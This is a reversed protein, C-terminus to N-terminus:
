AYFALSSLAPSNEFDPGPLGLLASVYLDAAADRSASGHVRMALLDRMYQQLPNEDLIVSAGAVPWIDFVAQLCSAIADADEFRVKMRELPTARRGECAIDFLRRWGDLHRIRMTEATALSGALRVRLHPNSTVPAGTGRRAHRRKSEEIYVHLAGLSAGISANTMTGTLLGTFSLGYLPTRNVELGPDVGRYTDDLVHARHDPVFTEAITLTKSGTGKLGSVQWSDPDVVCDSIPVLFNRDGAGAFVWEVHDVGSSFTWTGSVRYGGDVKEWRGTPAYASSARADPGSAWFEQQARDDLLAIEFSHVALQGGIWSASPNCGAVRVLGDFFDAPSLELGGYRMPTLARFFGAYELAQVTEVPVFGEAESAPLGNRVTDLISDVRALFKQGEEHARVVYESAGAGASSSSGITM